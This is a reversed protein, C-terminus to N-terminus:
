AQQTLSFLYDAIPRLEIAIRDILWITLAFILPPRLERWNTRNVLVLLLTVIVALFTGSLTIRSFDAAPCAPCNFDGVSANLLYIPFLYFLWTARFGRPAAKAGYYHSDFFFVGYCVLLSVFTATSAATNLASLKSMWFRQEEISMTFPIVNFVVNQYTFVFVYLWNLLFLSTLIWAKGIAGKRSYLRLTAEPQFGRRGRRSHWLLGGLLAALVCIDVQTDQIPMEISFASFLDSVLNRFFDRWSLVVAEVLDSLNLEDALSALIQIAPLVALLKWGKRGVARRILDNMEGCLSRISSGSRSWRM